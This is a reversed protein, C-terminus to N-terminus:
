NKTDFSRPAVSTNSRRRHGGDKCPSWMVIYMESRRNLHNRGLPRQRESRYNLHNPGLPREPQCQENFQSIGQKGISQNPVESNGEQDRLPQLLGIDTKKAAQAEQSWVEEELM